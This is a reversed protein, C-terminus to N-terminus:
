TLISLSYPSASRIQTYLIYCTAFQSEFVRLDTEVQKPAGWTGQSYNNETRRDLVGFLLRARAAAAKMQVYLATLCRSQFIFSPIM